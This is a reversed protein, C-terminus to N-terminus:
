TKPEPKGTLTLAPGVIERVAKEASEKEERPPTAAYCDRLHELEDEDLVSGAATIAVGLRRDYECHWDPIVEQDWWPERPETVDILLVTRAM